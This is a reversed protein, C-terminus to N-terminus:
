IGMTMRLTLNVIGALVLALLFSNTLIETFTM